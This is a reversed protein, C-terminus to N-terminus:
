KKNKILVLRGAKTFYSYASLMAGEATSNLGVRTRIEKVEEFNLVLTKDKVEDDLLYAPIQIQNKRFTGKVSNLVSFRIPNFGLYYCEFYNSKSDKLKYELDKLRRSSFSIQEQVEQTCEVTYISDFNAPVIPLTNSCSLGDLDVKTPTHGIWDGIFGLNTVVSLKLVTGKQDKKYSEKVFFPVENLSQIYSSFILEKDIEKYTGLSIRQAMDRGFVFTNDEFLGIIYTKNELSAKYCHQVGYPKMKQKSTIKDSTGCGTVFFLITYIFLIEKM